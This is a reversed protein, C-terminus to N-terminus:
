GKFLIREERVDLHTFTDYVGIGRFGVMAGYIAVQYPTMGEVQVDMAMGKLHYSSDAGGCDDNQKKTRYGGNQTIRVPKKILMRLSEAGEILDDHIIIKDGYKSNGFEKVKFHQSVNKDGDKSLSYEM